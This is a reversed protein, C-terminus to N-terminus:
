VIVNEKAFFVPLALMSVFVFATIDGDLIKISLLGLLILLSAYLKNKFLKHKTIKVIGKMLKSILGERMHKTRKKM